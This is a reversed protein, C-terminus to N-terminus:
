EVLDDAKGGYRKPLETEDIIPLLASAIASKSTGVINMKALTKASMLPKFLWFIWTLVTPVNLFFKISLFEPYHNQFINTAEAAAAKQNPDRGTFLSVGAYDHIQVMQDVKEFDLLEISREMLQVRWRIFRPVDSFVVKIDQGGYLNYNVPRDEKDHGVVFGLKGFIADDFKEAMIAEIGFDQRWKLTALLMEHAQAVDLNRARLFKMLLVSVRADDKPAHPDVTVGWLKISEAKVSFDEPHYAKGFIEPLQTRFEKLAKWEDATFKATLDNQPEDDEEEATAEPITPTTRTPETVDSPEPATVTDIAEAATDKSAPEPATAESVKEVIQPESVTDTPTSESM